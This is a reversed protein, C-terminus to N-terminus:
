APIRQTWFLAAHDMLTANETFVAINMAVVISSVKNARHGQSSPSTLSETNHGELDMFGPAPLM